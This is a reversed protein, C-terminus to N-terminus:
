ECRTMPRLLVRVSSMTMAQVLRPPRSSLTQLCRTIGLHGDGKNALLEIVGESVPDLVVSILM